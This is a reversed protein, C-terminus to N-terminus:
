GRTNKVPEFIVAEAYNKVGGGTAYGVQMRWESVIKHIHGTGGVGVPCYKVCFGKKELEESLVEFTIWRIPADGYDFRQCQCKFVKCGHSINKRINWFHHLFYQHNCRKCRRCKLHMFGEKSKHAFQKEGIKKNCIVCKM